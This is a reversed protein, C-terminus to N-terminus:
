LGPLLLPASFSFALWLVIVLPLGLKIFDVFRYQGPGMVLLNTQYGIPTAFSMNAAFLVTLAFAESLGGLDRGMQLAIPVFLIATANNTLLNTFLAVVIFLASLTIQPSAGEFLGLFHTAIFQAGGTREFALALALSSAVLFYINLDFASQAQRLTLCRTLIMATAGGLAAVVMPVLGTAATAIVLAFILRARNANLRLPLESTQWDLLLVDANTRLAKIANPRGLVLLVDGAELRISNVTAGIMRSRRQVGLPICDTLHRFGIQEITRGVMRSTPAVVVESLQLTRIQKQDLEM